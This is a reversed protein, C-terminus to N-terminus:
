SGFRDGWTPCLKDWGSFSKRNGEAEESAAVFLSAPFWSAMFSQSTTEQSGAEGSKALERKM